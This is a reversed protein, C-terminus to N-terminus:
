GSSGMATSSSMDSSADFTAGISSEFAYSKTAFVNTSRPSRCSTRARLTLVMSSTGSELQNTLRM